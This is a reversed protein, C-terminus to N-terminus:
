PTLQEFSGYHNGTYYIEGGAATVIRRPGPGNVGTTPVVYETYYGPPQQPLLGENNNFTKGDNRHPYKGGEEIRELTPGLEHLRDLPDVGGQTADTSNNNGSSDAASTGGGVCDPGATNHVVWEGVGVTYSHDQAVTLNYMVKTGPVVKWGTVVGVSGDARLVHMGLHLQAVPVFGQELTFFPHKQNTHIVESHKTVVTSHQAHTTTTLKLDVLDNDHNIWVHQIPELEM